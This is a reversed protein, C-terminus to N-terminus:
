LSCLSCGEKILGRNAHWRTHNAEQNSHPKGKNAEAMARARAVWIPNGKRSANMKKAAASAAKFHAAYHESTWPKAVGKQAAALERMRTLKGKDAKSSKSLRSRSEVSWTIGKCSRRSHLRGRTCPKSLATKTRISILHKTEQTHTFGTQDPGCDGGDTRNRLIGAGTDIRGYYAILFIEAAFADKESPHDQILIRAHDLPHRVTHGSNTYARYGTGKGVYYPTGDERLWLYTYYSKEASAM